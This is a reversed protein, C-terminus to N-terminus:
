STASSEGTALRDLVPVAQELLARDASDLGDLVDSMWVDRAQKEAEVVEHGAPTVALRVARKDDPDADRTILGRDVLLALVKTLTPPQVSELAALDGASMPGYVDLVALASLQSLSLSTDVRNSRIRRALRLVAVRLDHALADGSAQQAAM